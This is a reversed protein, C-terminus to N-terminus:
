VGPIGLLFIAPARAIRSVRAARAPASGRQVLSRARAHDSRCGQSTPQLKMGLVAMLWSSIHCASVKSAGVISRSSPKASLAPIFTTRTYRCLRAHSSSAAPNLCRMPRKRSSASLCRMLTINTSKSEQQFSWGLAPFCGAGFGPTWLEPQSRAGPVARSNSARM